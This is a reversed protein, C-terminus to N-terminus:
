QEPGAVRPRIWYLGDQAAGTNGSVRLALRDARGAFRSLDVGIALLSGSPQKTGEYILEGAFSIQVKVGSSQANPRLGIDALFYQGAQIAPIDFQGEIFSGTGTTPVTYLAMPYEKGDELVQNTALDAWGGREVNNIPAGFRIPGADTSWRASPAADILNVPPPLPPVPTATASPAPPVPTATASPAPPATPTATAAATPASTPTAPAVSVREIRTTTKGGGTAVLRFDTTQEPRFTRQGQPPVDGFQDITVQEANQVDWTVTVVQGPAGIQPAVTFAAVVPAGPEATPTLTPALTPALTAIATTTGGAIPPAPARNRSAFLLALALVLALALAAAWIPILPQQVFQAVAQAPEGATDARVTFQRTQPSGILRRPGYVTLAVAAAQGPDLTLQDQAFAYDLAQQEDEAGLLYAATANGENRVTVQYSAADRGEARRPSLALSSAAFPLVTWRGRATGSEAQSAASRARVIVPYDGALSEPARPVNVTIAATARGGPAVQVPQDPGIVWAGPVGEVSIALEDATAGQNTLTVYVVAPQGPTIALQAQGLQVGIRGAGIAQTAPVAQVAAGLLNTLLPDAAGATAAPAARQAASGPQPALKLTFPGVRATERWDWPTAVHPTLPRGGLLTRNSSGLDTATVQRGDWDIRLHQRSVQEHELALDSDAARGVTLGTRPLDVVRVIRGQPDIAQVQPLAAGASVTPQSSPTSTMPAVLTPQQP